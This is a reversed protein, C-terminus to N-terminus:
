LELRSVEQWLNGNKRLQLNEGATMSFNVSGKLKITSNHRITANGNTAHISIEEGDMGGTIDNIKTAATNALKFLGKPSIEVSFTEALDPITAYAAHSSFTKDRLMRNSTGDITNTFRISYKGNATIGAPLDNLAIESNYNSVVCRNFFVTSDHTANSGKVNLLEHDDGLFGLSHFDEVVLKLSGGTQFLARGDSQWVGTALRTNSFRVFKNGGSDLAADLVRLFIPTTPKGGVKQNPDPKVADFEYSSNNTAIAEGAGNIVLITDIHATSLYNVKLCGGAKFWFGYAVNQLWLNEFTYNVGQNNRVLM